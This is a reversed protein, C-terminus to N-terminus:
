ENKHVHCTFITTVGLFFSTAIKYDFSGLIKASTDFVKKNKHPKHEVGKAGSRQISYMMLPWTNCSTRTYRKSYIM